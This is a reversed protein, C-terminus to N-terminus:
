RRTPEPKVILLTMVTPECLPAPDAAAREAVGAELRAVFAQREHPTRGKDLAATFTPGFAARVFGAYGRALAAVDGSAQFAQWLPDAVHDLRAVELSLGLGADLFPAELEQSTRNYIPVVMRALEAPALSGEEVMGELVATVRRGLEALSWRGREDTAPVVVVLAGGPRLEASRHALFARWDLDAQHAFLAHERGTLLSPWAHGSFGAPAASLWHLAISCWGLTVQGAPLMREYFSGGSALSFVDEAAALYSHPDTRVLDFLSAYDNRPRDLHVVTIPARHARRLVRVAAGMPALSNKGEASGYDAIVIPSTGPPVRAAARALMVEGLAAAAQQPRSHANYFGQGEMAAGIRRAVRVPEMDM